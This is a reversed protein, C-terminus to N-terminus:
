SDPLVNEGLALPLEVRCQACRWAADGSQRRLATTGCVPCAHPSYIPRRSMELVSRVTYLTVTLERAFEAIAPHSDLAWALRHSLWGVLAAVTPHPLEEDDRIAAWDQAWSDLIAAVAVPGDQDGRYDQVETTTAPGALDLATARLPLPPNRHTRCVPRPGRGPTLAHPLLAHLDRLEWLAQALRRRDRDCVPPQNPEVQGCVICTV